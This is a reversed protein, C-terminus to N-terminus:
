SKNQKVLIWNFNPVWALFLRKIWDPLHKFIDFLFSRKILGFREPQTIMKLTYDYIIFSGLLEKLQWYNLPCIDYEEGKKFLRMYANALPQPLWSLFPLWYHEEVLILKNPGSFFCIGGKRLLRWIEAALSQQNVTHEYIQACVIVDFSEDPFPAQGGDAILLSIEEPKESRGAEKVLEGNIDFGVVQKFQTRFIRSMVGTSCGIDLCSLDQLGTELYDELVRIIKEAQKERPSYGANFISRQKM